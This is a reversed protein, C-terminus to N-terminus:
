FDSLKDKNELFNGIEDFDGMKQQCDVATEVEGDVEKGASGAEAGYHCSPSPRGGIRVVSSHPPESRRYKKKYFLFCFMLSM